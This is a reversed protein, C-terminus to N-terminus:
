NGSVLSLPPVELSKDPVGVVILKGQPKLLRLFQEIAHNASVTDIIGDLTGM